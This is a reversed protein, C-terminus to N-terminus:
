WICYKLHTTDSKLTLSDFNDKLNSLNDTIRHSASIDVKYMLLIADSVFRKEQWDCGCVINFMYIVLKFKNIVVKRM